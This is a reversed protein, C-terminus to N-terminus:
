TEGGDAGASELKVKYETVLAILEMRSYKHGASWRRYLSDFAARGYNDIYWSYFIWQHSNHKINCNSCQAATNGGPHIDWRAGHSRRGLIHGCQLRETSHCLVCRGDRSRVILSTLRDLSAVLAKRSPLRARRKKKPKAPKRKFATRKLPTSRKM